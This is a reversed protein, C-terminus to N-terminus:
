DVRGRLLEEIAVRRPAFADLLIEICREPRAPNCMFIDIAAYQQDPWCHLAIHSEALIAVASTAGNADFPQLHLHVLTAGAADVCKRLTNEILVLDNLRNAGYLDILLHAGAGRAGAREIFDDQNASRALAGETADVVPEQRVLELNLVSRRGLLPRRHRRAQLSM